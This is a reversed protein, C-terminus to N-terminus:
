RVVEFLLFRDALPGPLEVLELWDPLPEDGRLLADLSEPGADEAAFQYEIASPCLLILDVGRQDVIERSKDPPLVFLNYLDIIGEANRHYPGAIISHHTRYLLEPGYWITTAIVREHDGLGDVDDLFPAIDSLPCRKPGDYGNGIDPQGAVAGGVIFFGGLSAVSATSWAAGRIAPWRVRKLSNHLEGLLFAVVISAPITLYGASRAHQLSLAFFIGLSLVVVAWTTLARLRYARVIVFPIAAFALVAQGAILLLSGLSDSSRPILPQLETVKDLWIEQVAPNVDVDPGGLVKPYLAVLMVVSAGAAAGLMGARASAQRAAGRNRTALAVALWTLALSGAATLHVVSIKDYETAFWQSPAREATIAVALTLATALAYRAMIGPLARDGRAVWAASLVGVTVLLPLLMEVSVWIGAGAVIGGIWPLWRSRSPAVLRLTIGLSVVLLLIQLIHHDARGPMSQTLLYPQALAAIALLPRNIGLPRAAWLLALLAALHLVPCVIGASWLLARDIDMFPILPLAGAIVLVDFPRTWHLNDGDPVNSREIVSDYWGGGHVLESVRVLRMYSDPENLNGHVPTYPSLFLLAGQLVAWTLMVFLCLLLTARSPSFTM